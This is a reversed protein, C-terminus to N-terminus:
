TPHCLVLPWLLSSRLASFLILLVGVFQRNDLLPKNLNHRFLFSEIEASINRGRTAKRWISSGFGILVGVITWYILFQTLM